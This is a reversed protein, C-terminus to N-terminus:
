PAIAHTLSTQPSQGTAVLRMARSGKSFLLGGIKLFKRQILLRLFCRGPSAKQAPIGM